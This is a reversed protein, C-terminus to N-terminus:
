RSDRYLDPHAAVYETFAGSAKIWDDAAIRAAEL